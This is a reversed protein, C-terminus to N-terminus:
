SPMGTSGHCCPYAPHRLLAARGAGQCQLVASMSEACARRTGQLGQARAVVENSPLM